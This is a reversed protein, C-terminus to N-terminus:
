AENGKVGLDYLLGLNNYNRRPDRRKWYNVDIEEREAKGRHSFPSSSLLSLSLRLDSSLLKARSDRSVRPLFLLPYILYRRTNRNM